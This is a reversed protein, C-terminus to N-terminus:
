GEERAKPNFKVGSVIASLSFEREEVEELVAMYIHVIFFIGFLWMMAHHILRLTQNGFLTLLWGFMVRWFGSAYPEAYLAFGIIGQILIMLGLAAYGLGAVPNHGMYHPRKRELFVYYKLQKWFLRWREESVPFWDRWSAYSNGVFFWYIRVLFGLGFAFASIFHIYRIWGMLYTQDTQSPVVIFPNGIYYGTFALLAISAVHIWHFARVPLEWVYVHESAREYM